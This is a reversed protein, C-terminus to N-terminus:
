WTRTWWSVTSSRGPVTRTPPSSSPTVGARWTPACASNAPSAASSTAPTFDAGLPTPASQGDPYREIRPLDDRAYTTPYGDAPDDYLVCLVKAM